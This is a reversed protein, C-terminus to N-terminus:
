GVSELYVSLERRRLQAQYGALLRDLLQQAAQPSLSSGAVPCRQQLGARLEHVVAQTLSASDAVVVARFERRCLPLDAYHAAQATTCALFPLVLYLRKAICRM